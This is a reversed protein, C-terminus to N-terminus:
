FPSLHVDYYKISRGTTKALLSGWSKALSKLFTPVHVVSGETETMTAVVLEVAATKIKESVLTDTSLTWKLEVVCEVAALDSPNELQHKLLRRILGLDM